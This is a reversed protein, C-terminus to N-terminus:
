SVVCFSVARRDNCCWEHLVQRDTTTSRSSDKEEEEQLPMHKRKEKDFQPLLGPIIFDPNVQKSALYLALWVAACQDLHALFCAFSGLM